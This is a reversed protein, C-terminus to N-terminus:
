QNASWPPDPLALCRCQFSTLTNTCSLSASARFFSGAFIIVDDSFLQRGHRATKRQSTAAPQKRESIVVFCISKIASCCFGSCDKFQWLLYIRIRQIAVTYFPWQVHLHTSVRSAKYFSDTRGGASLFCRLGM